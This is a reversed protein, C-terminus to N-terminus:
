GVLSMKTTSNKYHSNMTSMDDNGGRTEDRTTYLQTRDDDPFISLQDHDYEENDIEYEDYEM